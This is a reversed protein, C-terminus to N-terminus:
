SGITIWYHGREKFFFDPHSLDDVRITEEHKAPLVYDGDWCAYLEVNQLDSSKLYDVLGQHDLQSTVAEEGEEWVVSVWQGKEYLAHRFACGCGTNSGVYLVHPMSFHQLVPKEQEELEKTNFAPQESNYHISPLRVESGLYLTM